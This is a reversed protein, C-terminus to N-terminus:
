LPPRQWGGSRSELYRAVAIGIDERWPQTVVQLGIPLNKGDSSGGCRVVMAPWGLSNFASTYGWRPGTATSKVDYGVDFVPAPTAVTPCILVDYSSFWQLMKVRNADQAEWAQIYAATSVPKIRKMQEYRSPSFSKTGWKDALRKYYALGDGNTLVDRAAYLEELLGLPLDEKVSACSEELWKVTKLVTGITDQDTDSGTNSSFFAIKLKKLDVARPDRWPVPACAADHFDPGSIIPTVLEIDEVRRALPGIQQWLDLAGGYGVIHGTRPVRVSTPKIGVVGDFHAPLRISGGWDSGVDFAACGSAVVSGAGGSSAGSTRTLDYPNRTIGNLPTSSTSGYIGALGGLTFELTHTKATLIAGAKRLRAVVTADQKPVYQLRGITGGTSVVGETDFSDKITIPVGHLPGMWQGRAALQDATHAERLAREHCPTVIANITYDIQEQRKIFAQTAEVASVKRTRILQALKTASMFILEHSPDNSAAQPAGAVAVSAAALLRRGRLFDRRAASPPSESDGTGPNSNM